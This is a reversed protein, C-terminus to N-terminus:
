GAFVFVAVAAALATIAAGGALAPRRFRMAWPARPHEAAKTISPISSASIARAIAADQVAATPLAVPAGVALAAARLQEVRARCPACRRIHASASSEGDLLASLDEDSPHDTPTM